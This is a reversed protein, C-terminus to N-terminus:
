PTPYTFNGSGANYFMEKRKKDYLGPRNNWDLAPVFDAVLTSNKYMKFYYIKVPGGQAAGANDKNNSFIFTPGTVAVRDGPWTGPSTWITNGDLIFNPGDTSLVHDNLNVTFLATSKIYNPNDGYGIFHTKSYSFQSRYKPNSNTFDIGYIYNRDSNVNTSAFKVEIDNFDSCTMGSNIYQSGSSQLYALPTVDKCIGAAEGVEKVCIQYTGCDSSAICSPPNCKGTAPVWESGTPCTCAM